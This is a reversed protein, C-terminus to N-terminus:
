KQSLKRRKIELALQYVAMAYKPSHNYRTIVYFNDGTVWHESGNAGELQLLSLHKSNLKGQLSVGHQQLESLSHVPKTAKVNVINGYLNGLIRAPVTVDGGNKWGHKAFYNAVSGIADDPHWLDTHGDRNFDVAYSRYSSSIFQGLGMAGAYSGTLIAPNNIKEERIFQLYHKLESTYFKERKPFDMALTTLSRLVNHKGTNRGYFTEVGIIAVIIEPDVGFQQSAAKIANAHRNWFGLGSRIRDETIFIPRYKRWPKGEAPSNVLSLIRDDRKINSFTQILYDKSFGTEVMHKIFRQMAPYPMYDGNAYSSNSTLLLISFLFIRIKIM